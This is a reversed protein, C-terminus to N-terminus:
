WHMSGQMPLHAVPALQSGLAWRATQRQGCPCDPSARTDQRWVRVKGTALYWQPPIPLRITGSGCQRGFWDGDAWGIGMGIRVLGCRGVERVLRQGLRTSEGISAIFFANFFLLYYLYIIIM